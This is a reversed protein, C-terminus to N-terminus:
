AQEALRSSQVRPPLLIWGFLLYAILPGLPHVDPGGSRVIVFAYWAIIALAIRAVSKGLSAAGHNLWWIWIVGEAIWIPYSDESGSASAAWALRHLAAFTGQLSIPPSRLFLILQPVLYALVGAAAVIAVTRGRWRAFWPARGRDELRNWRYLVGWAILVCLLLLQFSDGNSSKMYSGLMKDSGLWLYMAIWPVHSIATVITVGALRRLWGQAPAHVDQLGAAVAATDGFHREVLLLADPESVKQQGSLYGQLQDQLHSVLERRVEEDHQPSVRVRQALSEIRLISEPSLDYPM